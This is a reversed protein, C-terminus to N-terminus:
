ENNNEDLKNVTQDHVQGYNNGSIYYFISLLILYFETYYTVVGYEVIILPVFLSFALIAIPYLKIKFFLRRIVLFYISYYITFGLLGMGVLIEIFNNHAYSSNNLIGFTGIGYGFLPRKYFLLKGQDILFLRTATSSDIDNKGLVLANLLQYFRYGIIEYFFETEMVLLAVVLIFMFSIISFRIFKGIETISFFTVIIVGVTIFILVKRSGTLLSFLLFIVTLVLYFGKKKILGYFYTIIVAVALKMGLDNPNLRIVSGLRSTGYQNIPTRIVVVLVTILASIIIYRLVRDINEKNDMLFVQLCIAILLGKLLNISLKLSEFVDVSYVTSCLSLIFLAIAWGWFINMPSKTRIAFSLMMGIYVVELSYLVIRYNKLLFAVLIM